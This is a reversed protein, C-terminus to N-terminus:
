TTTEDGEDVDLDELYEFNWTHECFGIDFGLKYVCVMISLLTGMGSKVQVFAWSPYENWSVSAQLLAWRKTHLVQVYLETGYDERRKFSILKM